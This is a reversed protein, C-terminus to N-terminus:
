GCSPAIRNAILVYQVSIPLPDLFYKVLLSFICYIFLLHLATICSALIVIVKWFNFLQVSCLKSACSSFFSLHQSSSLSKIWTALIEHLKEGCCNTGTRLIHTSDVHRTQRTFPPLESFPRWEQLCQTHTPTCVCQRVHQHESQCNATLFLGSLARDSWSSDGRLHTPIVSRTVYLAVVM